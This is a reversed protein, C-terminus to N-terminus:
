LQATQNARVKGYLVVFPGLCLERDVERGDPGYRIGSNFELQGFGVWGLSYYRGGIKLDLSRGCLLPVALLICCLLVLACILRKFTFKLKM